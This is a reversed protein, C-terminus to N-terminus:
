SCISIAKTRAHRLEQRTMVTISKYGLAAHLKTQHTGYPVGKSFDAKRTMECIANRLLTEEEKPTRLDTSTAISGGTKLALLCASAEPSNPSFGYREFLERVDKQAQDEESKGDLFQSYVNTVDGSIPAFAGDSAPGTGGERTTTLSIVSDQEKRLLEILRNMKPDDPVFAYCRTKGEMSRWSRALMQEIWPESRIHTLCAIHTIAPVDLGEYAIQCTVLCETSGNRFQNIQDSSGDEDSIALGCRIGLATLIKAYKRASSQDMCVVLLKTGHKRWHCLCNDLLKDAVGVRLATCLAQSEEDRSAESLTINNIGNLNEWEVPGDHHHFEIPVIAGEALAKKRSYRIVTGNFSELDLEHGNATEKYPVGFIFSNDNTKLTGTMLLRASPKLLSVARTLPTQTGDRNIKAHHLEDFVLLYKARELERAWLEPNSALTQHSAVVGRTGRRPNTVNTSEMVEIGFDNKLSRAAQDLLSIRPAFWMLKLDPFAELLIGPLRSKGGGPVVDALIDLGDARETKRALNRVEEQHARDNM